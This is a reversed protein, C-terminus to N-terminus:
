ARKWPLIESVADAADLMAELDVLMGGSELNAKPLPNVLTRYECFSLLAAQIVALTISHALMVNEETLGGGFGAVATTGAFWESPPVISVRVDLDSSTNLMSIGQGAAGASLVPRAPDAKGRKLLPWWDNLLPGASAMLYTNGDEGQQVFARVFVDSVPIDIGYGSTARRYQFGGWDAFPRTDAAVGLVFPAEDDELVHPIENFDFAGPM